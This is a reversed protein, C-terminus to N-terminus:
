RALEYAIAEAPFFLSTYLSSWRYHALMQQV